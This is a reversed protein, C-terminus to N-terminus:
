LPVKLLVAAGTCRQTFKGAASGQTDPAGEVRAGQHGASGGPARARRRGGGEHETLGLHVSSEIRKYYYDHWLPKTM